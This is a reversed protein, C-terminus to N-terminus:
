VALNLKIWGVVVFQGLRQVIDEESVGVEDGIVDKFSEKSPSIRRKDTLAV